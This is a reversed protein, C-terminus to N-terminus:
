KWLVSGTPQRAAIREAEAQALERRPHWGGEHPLYEITDWVPFVDLAGRERCVCAKFRTGSEDTKVCAIIQKASSDMRKSGAAGPNVARVYHAVLQTLKYLYAITL